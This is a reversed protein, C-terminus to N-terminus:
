RANLQSSLSIAPEVGTLDVNSSQLVISIIKIAYFLYYHRRNKMVEKMPWITFHNVTQNLLEQLEFILCVYTRIRSSRSEQLDDTFKKNGNDAM